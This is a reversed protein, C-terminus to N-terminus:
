TWRDVKAGLGPILKALGPLIRFLIKLPPKIVPAIVNAINRRAVAHAFVRTWFHTSLWTNLMIRIAAKPRFNYLSIVFWSAAEEYVQNKYSRVFRRSVDAGFVSWREELNWDRLLDLSENTGIWGKDSLQKNVQGEHHRWFFLASSDFGTIGFPVIGYLQSSEVAKHYGGAELLVNRKITFITGPAAFLKRSGTLTDLAVEHGAIYRPRLNVDRLRVDNINGDIDISVPLGAATTCEPNGEFLAVMKEVYDPAFYDDDEQVWVYDGTAEALGANWCIEVILMPDDPSYQNEAFDVVKIRPDQHKISELYSITDPTGGNNVLIIEINSYTQRQLAELSIKLLHPRNYTHIIASFLPQNGM